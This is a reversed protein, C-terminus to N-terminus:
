TESYGLLPASEVKSMQSIAKLETQYEFAQHAFWAPEHEATCALIPIVLDPSKGHRQCPQCAFMLKSFGATAQSCLSSALCFASICTCDFSCISVVEHVTHGLCHPALRVAVEVAPFGRQAKAAKRTKSCPSSTNVQM